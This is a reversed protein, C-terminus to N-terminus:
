MPPRVSNAIARLEAAAETYTALVARLREGLPALDLAEPPAPTQTLTGAIREGIVHEAQLRYALSEIERATLERALRALTIPTDGSM